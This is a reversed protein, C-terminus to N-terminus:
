FTRRDPRNLNNIRTKGLMKLLLNRLSRLVPYLIRSRRQSHFVHSNVRNFFGKRRGAKALEHIAESGYFLRGDKKVVM